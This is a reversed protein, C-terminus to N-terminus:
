RKKKHPLKRSGPKTATAEAVARKRQSRTMPGGMDRPIFPGGNRKGSNKEEVPM